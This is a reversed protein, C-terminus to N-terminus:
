YKLFDTVNTELQDLKNKDKKKRMAPLAQSSHRIPDTNVVACGLSALKM